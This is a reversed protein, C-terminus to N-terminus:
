KKKLEGEIAKTVEESEPKTRANFRGVVEGNRGILFKAFNWEIEGGFKPNTDKSTLFKYLPDKAEGKVSVKSMMDFQVNYNDKCFKAIEDETGPEQAGFDNCPVGIIALGEKGYKEHLTELGKYQPTNGCRSAVNVLLIVKGKYNALDVEKGKIDKLKFNLAPPVKKDGKDEAPVVTATTLLALATLALLARRM